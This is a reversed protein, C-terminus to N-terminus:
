SNLSAIIQRALNVAGESIIKMMVLKYATCIKSPLITLDHNRQIAFKQLGAGFHYDMQMLAALKQLLCVFAREEAGHMTGTATELSLTIQLSFLSRQM